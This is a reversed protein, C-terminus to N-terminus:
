GDKGEVDCNRGAAGAVWTGFGSVWQVFGARASPRCEAGVLLALSGLGRFGFALEESGAVSRGGCRWVTCGELIGEHAELAFSEIKGEM